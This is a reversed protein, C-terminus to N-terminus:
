LRIRPSYNLYSFPRGDFTFPGGSELFCVSLIYTNPGIQIDAQPRLRGNTLM